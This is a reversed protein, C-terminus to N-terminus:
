ADRPATERRTLRAAAGHCHIAYYGAVREPEDAAYIVTTRASLGKSALARRILWDDPPPHRGNRFRALDHKPTLREPPLIRTRLASSADDSM